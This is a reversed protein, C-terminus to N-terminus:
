DQDMSLLARGGTNGVTLSANVTISLVAVNVGKAEINFVFRKGGLPKIQADISSGDLVGEFEVGGGGRHVFSGSPIRIFFTGVQITVDETTPDIAVTRSGLTFHGQLDLEKGHSELDGDIQFIYFPLLEAIQGGVSSIAYGEAPINSILVSQALAVSSSGAQVLLSYTDTAQTGLKPSVQIFYAGTKLVPSIVADADTDYLSDATERLVERDTFTFDTAKITIGDPDSVALTVPCGPPSRFGVQNYAAFRSPIWCFM